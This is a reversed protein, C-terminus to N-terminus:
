AYTILAASHPDVVLEHEARKQEHDCGYGIGAGRALHGIKLESTM